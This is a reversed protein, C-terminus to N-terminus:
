RSPSPGASSMASKAKFPLSYCSPSRVLSRRPRPRPVNPHVRRSRTPISSRQGVRLGRWFPLSRSHGPVGHQRRSRGAQISALRSRCLYRALSVPPLPAAAPRPLPPPLTSANPVTIAANCNPCTATVGIQAHTASIHQGCTPCEFKLEMIDPCSTAGATEGPM